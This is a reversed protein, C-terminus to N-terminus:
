KKNKPNRSHPAIGRYRTFPRTPSPSWVRQRSAIFLPFFWPGYGGAAERRYATSLGGAPSSETKSRQKSFPGGVVMSDAHPYPPKKSRAVGPKRAVVPFGRFSLSFMFWLYWSCRFVSYQFATALATLALAPYLHWTQLEGWSRLACWRDYSFTPLSSSWRM